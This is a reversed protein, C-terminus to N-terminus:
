EAYGERIAAERNVEIMRATADLESQDFQFLYKTYIPDPFEFLNFVHWRVLDTGYGLCYGLGQQSFLWKKSLFDKGPIKKARRCKFEEIILPYGEPGDMTIGDCNMILPNHMECPQWTMWTHLSALYEEIALGLMWRLPMEEEEIEALRDTIRSKVAVYKLLGSLHLGHARSPPIIMGDPGVDRPLVVRRLLDSKELRVDIESLLTPM